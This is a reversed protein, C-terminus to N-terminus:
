WSPLALSSCLLFLSGSGPSAGIPLDCGVGPGWGLGWPIGRELWPAWPHSTQPSPILQSSIWPLALPALGILRPRVCSRGIACVM